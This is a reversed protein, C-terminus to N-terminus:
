FGNVYRNATVEEIWERAAALRNEAEVSKWIRWYNDIIFTPNTETGLITKGVLIGPPIM